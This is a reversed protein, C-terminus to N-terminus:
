RQTWSCFLGNFCYTYLCTAFIPLLFFCLYYRAQVCRAVVTLLFEFWLSSLHMLVHVILKMAIKQNKDNRWHESVTQQSALLADLRYFVSHHHASTIIQRSLSASECVAWSIGSGSDRAETFDLKSKGKQYQSVRTTRSLPCYFPHQQQKRSKNAAMALLARHPSNRHMDRSQAIVSSCTQIGTVVTLGAFIALGIMGNTLLCMCVWSVRCCISTCMPALLCTCYFLRHHTVIFVTVVMVAAIELKSTARSPTQRM